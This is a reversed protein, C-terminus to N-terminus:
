SFLDRFSRRIGEMVSIGQLMLKKVEQMYRQREITEQLLFYALVFNAIASIGIFIRIIALDSNLESVALFVSVLFLMLSTSFAIITMILWLHYEREIQKVEVRGSALIKRISPPISSLIVM